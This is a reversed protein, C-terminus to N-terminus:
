KFDNLNFCNQVEISDLGFHLSFPNCLHSMLKTPDRFQALAEM